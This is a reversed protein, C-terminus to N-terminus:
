TDYGWTLRLGYKEANLMNKILAVGIIKESGEHISSIHM